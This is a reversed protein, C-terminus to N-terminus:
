QKNAFRVQLTLGNCNFGNMADIATQAEPMSTYKVFGYHLESVVKTSVVTGFASFLQRFGFDTIGAPLSGVYVNSHMGGAFPAPIGTAGRRSAVHDYGTPRAWTKVGSMIHVYYSRGDQLAFEAWEGRTGTQRGGAMAGLGGPPAEAPKAVVNAAAAEAGARREAAKAAILATAAEVEAALSGQALSSGTSPGSVIGSVAKGANSGSVAKERSRSRSKSM